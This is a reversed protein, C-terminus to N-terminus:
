TKDSWIRYLARPLGWVGRETLREDDDLAGLVQWQPTLHGLAMELVLLHGEPDEIEGEVEELGEIDAQVHEGDLTSGPGRAVVGLALGLWDAHQLAMVASVSEIEDDSPEDAPSITAALTDLWRADEDTLDDRVEPIRESLYEAAARDVAEWEESWSEIEDDTFDWESSM